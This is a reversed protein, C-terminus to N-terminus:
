AARRSDLDTVTAVARPRAASAREMAVVGLVGGIILAAPVSWLAVGVLAMLVFGIEALILM